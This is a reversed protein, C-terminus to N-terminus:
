RRSTSSRSSSCGFWRMLSSSGWRQAGADEQADSGDDLRTPRVSVFYQIQQGTHLQSRLQVIRRPDALLREIVWSLQYLEASSAMPLDEILKVRM